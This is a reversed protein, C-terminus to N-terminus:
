TPVHAECILRRADFDEGRWSPALAHKGNGAVSVEGTHQVLSPSHVYETWGAQRMAEVIAGDVFKKARKRKRHTDLDSPRVAIHRSGLLTAVAERSFVLAVAGKGLQNSPYWGTEGQLRTAALKQNKPFTYLNWYGTEPYECSELYDRLNRYTVFDDQFVAFREAEPHRLHLEWLALVFSGFIHVKPHRCTAPLGFREHYVLPELGGDVFLRPEPFGAMRLSVLTRPLTTEFREPVTTVGYSWEM